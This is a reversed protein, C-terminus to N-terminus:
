NGGGDTEDDSSLGLTKVDDKVGHGNWWTLDGESM